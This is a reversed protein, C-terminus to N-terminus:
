NLRKKNKKNLRDITSNAYLQGELKGEINIFLKKIHNTFEQEASAGAKHPNLIKRKVIRSRSRPSAVTTAEDYKKKVM